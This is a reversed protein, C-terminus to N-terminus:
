LSPLGRALFLGALSAIFPQVDFYQVSVGILLGLLAGVLLM